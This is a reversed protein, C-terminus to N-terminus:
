CEILKSNLLKATVKIAIFYDFNGKNVTVYPGDLEDISHAFEPGRYVANGHLQSAGSLSPESDVATWWDGLSGFGSCCLVLPVACFGFLQVEHDRGEPILVIQCKNM